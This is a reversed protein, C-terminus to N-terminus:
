CIKIFTHLDYTVFLILNVLLLTLFRIILYVNSAAYIYTGHMYLLIFNRSDYDDSACQDDYLDDNVTEDYNPDWVSDPSDVEVVYM